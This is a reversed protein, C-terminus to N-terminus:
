SGDLLGPHASRHRVLRRGRWLAWPGGLVAFVETRGVASPVECRLGPDPQIAIAGYDVGARLTTVIRRGLTRAALRRHGRDLAVKTLWAGLGLGYGRAQDLLATNDSRHRHWVIASPETAVVDGATVVRFFLDLDEGGQAATGAGLAEDFGGLELVRNRKVAFNAGTGLRGIQVPFLPMDPPPEALSVLRPQLHASWTVRGDFYAQAPTRLEGSPVLGAVCSVRPARGFGRAIGRLWHRDAVVDDDTYAVLDHRAARLGTNRATSLGPVPENILRVRPDGHRRVVQTTTDTRAANDVVVVEFNPYDLASLSTLADAVREPRDRTCIVVSIPPWDVPQPAEAPPDVAPIRFRVRGDRIPAEVFGIPQRRRRVLVRAHLYGDAHRPVFEVWGTKDPEWQEVDIM